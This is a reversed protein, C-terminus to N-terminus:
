IIAFLWFFLEFPNVQKQQHLKLFQEHLYELRRDIKILSSSHDPWAGAYLVLLTLFLFIGFKKM